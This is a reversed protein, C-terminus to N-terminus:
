PNVYACMLIIPLSTSLIGSQLTKLLHSEELRDVSVLAKVYESLAPANSHLSPQSEFILIDREPDSRYIEKLLSAESPSDFDRIRRAFRGVYSSRCRTCIELCVVVQTSCWFFSTEKFFFCIIWFDHMSLMILVELVVPMHQSALIYMGAAADRARFPFSAAQEVNASSLHRAAQSSV